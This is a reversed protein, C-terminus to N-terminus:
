KIWNKIVDSIFEATTTILAPDITDLTDKFTHTYELAGEFLDSSTVALCPIGKLAFACHDGAYWEHGNVIKEYKKMSDNIIERQSENINYYSIASQSNIHCPSDINIVLLIKNQNNNLYNVEGSAGFYEESNFPVFDIDIPYTVKKFCNMVNMLVCIGAANDLAGLTDYKTDIHACVVIKGKSNAIKKNAVLQRSTAMKNESNILLLVFPSEGILKKLQPLMDISMYASPISFNGDEFMTFPNMGSLKSKGTICIIAKPKKAEISSIIFKDEDPYYFPFNKPQIPRESVEGCLVIIKGSLNQNQLEKLYEIIVIEGIGNFPKSFPSPNIELEIDESKIISKKHKWVVCDFPLSTVEYGSKMFEQELYNLIEKNTETGVPRERTILKLLKINNM